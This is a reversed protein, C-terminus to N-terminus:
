ETESLTVVQGVLIPLVEDPQALDPIIFVHWFACYRPILICTENSVVWPKSLFSVM